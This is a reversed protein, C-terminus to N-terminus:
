YKILEISNSDNYYNDRERRENEALLRRNEKERRRKESAEESKVFALMSSAMGMAAAITKLGDNVEETTAIDKKTELIDVEISMTQLEVNNSNTAYNLCFEDSNSKKIESDYAKKDLEGSNYKIIVDQLYSQKYSLFDDNSKVVKVIKNKASEIDINLNKINQNDINSRHAFYTVAGSCLAALSLLTVRRIINQGKSKM